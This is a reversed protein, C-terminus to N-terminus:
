LRKSYRVEAVDFGFIRIDRADDDLSWGALEYFRRARPNDGLVWLIADRHGLRRLEGEGAEILARGTGTGWAQPHVYIAFLEGDSGPDRGAGVSVFGVIEGDREAVFTPPWRRSRDVADQVSLAALQQRPLTHAYAAQWTEVHVRAVGEADEPTGPRVM